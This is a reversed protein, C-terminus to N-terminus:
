RAQRAGRRHRRAHWPAGTWRVLQPFQLSLHFFKTPGDLLHAAFHLAVAAAAIVLTVAVRSRAFPLARGAAAVPDAAWRGDRAAGRTGPGRASGAGGPTGGPGERARAGGRGGRAPGRRRRPGGAGGRRGGRGPSRSVPVDWSLQIIFRHSPGAPGERRKHFLA